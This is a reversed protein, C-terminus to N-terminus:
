VISYEFKQHALTFVMHCCQHVVIFLSSLRSSSSPSSSLKQIIIDSPYVHEKMYLNATNRSLGRLTETRTQFQRSGVEVVHSIMLRSELGHGQAPPQFSFKDYKAPWLSERDWHLNVIFKVRSAWGFINCNADLVLIPAWWSVSKEVSLLSSGGTTSITPTRSVEM